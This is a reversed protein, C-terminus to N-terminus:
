VIAVRTLVLWGGSGRAHCVLLRAGSRLLLAVTAEWDPAQASDPVEGSGVFAWELPQSQWRTDRARLDAGRALLLGVTGASGPAPVSPAPFQAASLASLLFQTTYRM